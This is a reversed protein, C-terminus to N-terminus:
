DGARYDALRQSKARAIVGEDDKENWGMSYLVFQAGDTRRVALEHLRPSPEDGYDNQFGHSFPSSGDGGRGIQTEM